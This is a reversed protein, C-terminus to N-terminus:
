RGDINGYLFAFVVPGFLILFVAPLTCLLLGALGLGIKAGSGRQLAAVLYLAIGGLVLLLEAMSIAFGFLHKLMPAILDPRMFNLVIWLGLPAGGLLVAYVIRENSLRPADERDM